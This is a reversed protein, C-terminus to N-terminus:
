EPLAVPNRFSDIASQKEQMMEALMAERDEESWDSWINEIAARQSIFSDHPNMKRAMDIKEDRSLGFPPDLEVTVKVGSKGQWAFWLAGIESAVQEARNQMRVVHKLYREHKRKDTAEHIDGKEDLNFLSRPAGVTFAIESLCDKVMGSAKTIIDLDRQIYQPVQGGPPIPFFEQNMNFVAENEIRLDQKSNTRRDEDDTRTARQMSQVQAAFKARFHKIREHRMQTKIETIEQLQEWVPFLISEGFFKRSSKRRNKQIVTLADLETVVTNEIGQFRKLTALDILTGETAWKKETQYLLREVQGVTYNEVYAYWKKSGKVMEYFNTIIRGSQMKQHTLTPIDPYWTSPDINVVTFYNEENAIDRVIQQEAHGNALLDRGWEELLEEYGISEFWELLEDPEGDEVTISLSTIADVVMQDVLAAGANLELMRVSPGLLKNKLYKHIPFPSNDGEDYLSGEAVSTYKEDWQSRAVEEHTRFQVKAM